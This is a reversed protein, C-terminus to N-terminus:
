EKGMSLHGTVSSTEPELPRGCREGAGPVCGFAGLLVSRLLGEGRPLEGTHDTITEMHFCLDIEGGTM